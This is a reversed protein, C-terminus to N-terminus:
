IEETQSIRRDASEEMFAMQRELKRPLWFDDSDLFAIYDGRASRVGLNRAAAVGRRSQAILRVRSGFRAHLDDATGDTSGDDVVILEWDRYSQALVSAVADFLMAKRNYAPIIISVLPPM